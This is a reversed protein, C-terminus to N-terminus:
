SSCFLLLHEFNNTIIANHISIKILRTQKNTSIYWKYPTVIAESLVATIASSPVAEFTMSSEGDHREWESLPCQNIHDNRLTRSVSLKTWHTLFSMNISYKCFHCLLLIFIWSAIKNPNIEQKFCLLPLLCKNFMHLCQIIFLQICQKGEFM